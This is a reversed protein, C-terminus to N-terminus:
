QYHLKTYKCFQRDVEVLKGDMINRYTQTRSVAMKINM